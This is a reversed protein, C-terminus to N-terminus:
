KVSPDRKACPEDGSIITFNRVGRRLNVLPLACLVLRNALNRWSVVQADVFGGALAFMEDGFDLLRKVV